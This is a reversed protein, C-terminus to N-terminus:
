NEESYIQIFKLNGCDWIRSYGENKRLIWEPINKDEDSRKRLNFRHIRSNNKLYWYNPVTIKELKFDLKYYLNGNSWRRDAYSFIKKWEYNQKFYKLLKSAIGIIRYNYNSCFRNLEWVGNEKKSGKSINGYSFTMVSVLENNYFAGLKVISNDIGQLHYKDLFYNKDKSSIEKILCQRAYIKKSNSSNLIHKIREKVIDNKFLWEDEFIQILFIDKELCNNTKNIHYNYDHIVEESHWYLGNYEFAIKKDPLFIDIEFPPILKRCKTIIQGNYITQIFKVLEKENFSEGNIKPFCEPCRGCKQYVNWWSSEFIKGCLKCKFTLLSDDSKYESILELNLIDLYKSLKNNIYNKKFTDRCKKNIKKNQIAYEHGYIKLNTRKIKIYRLEKKEKDLSKSIKNKVIESKAPNDVGFNKISTQIKKNKVWDLQSCNEQGYKNYMSKQLTKLIEKKSPCPNHCYKKYGEGLNIFGTKNGCELCIGENDKKLFKNYYEQISINHSKIHKSLGNINKCKKNCNEIKCEIM